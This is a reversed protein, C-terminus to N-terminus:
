EGTDSWSKRENTEEFVKERAQAKAIETDLKLEEDAARIAQKGQLMSKEAMLEAIKAKEQVQAFSSSTRESLSSRSKEYHRSFKSRNIDSNIPIDKRQEKTEGVESVSAYDLQESLQNEILVIWSKVQNCFDLFSKQRQEFRNMAELQDSELSLKSYYDHHAGQYRVFLDNLSELASKVLHLNGDENMLKTIENRKRTVAALSSVQASRLRSIEYLEGKETQQRSQIQRTQTRKVDSIEATGSAPQNDATESTSMMFALWVAVILLKSTWSCM